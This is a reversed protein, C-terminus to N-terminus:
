TKGKTKIATFQTNQSPLFGLLKCQSPVSVVWGLNDFSDLNIHQVSCGLVGTHYITCNCVFQM